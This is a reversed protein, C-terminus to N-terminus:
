KQDDGEPQKDSQIAPPMFFIFTVIQVAALALWMLTILWTGAHATSRVVLALAWAAKIAVGLLLSKRSLDWNNTKIAFLKVCGLLVFIIGWFKYNFVENVILLPATVRSQDITVFLSIGLFINFLAYVVLVAHALPTVTRLNPRAKQIEKALHHTTM